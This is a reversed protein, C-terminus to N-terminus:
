LQLQDLWGKWFRQASQELQPALKRTKMRLEGVDVKSAALEHAHGVYWRELGEVTVEPHFQVALAFDGIGFAQNPYRESSALLRADFPIEFTDGHFHFVAPCELLLKGLTPVSYIDPGATVKAWGIEKGEVGPYVRAGLAQAMLQAGLCIGLTPRRANLRSSIFETENRLFPYPEIDYASIPGGLIVVLDPAVPDLSEFSVTSADVERISAGRKELEVALTGLDEFAVHTLVLVDMM